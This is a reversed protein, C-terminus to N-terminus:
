VEIETNSKQGGGVDNSLEQEGHETADAARKVVLQAKAAELDKELQERVAAADKDLQFVGLSVVCLPVFSCFMEYM